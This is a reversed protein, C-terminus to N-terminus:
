IKFVLVVELGGASNELLVKGNMQEMIYKVIFLGLGSGPEDGRNRGRYFKDFIFPMDEPMIGNGHDKIHLRYENDGIDTWINIKTGQAYKRANNIINEITQAIRGSDADPIVMSQIDGNLIIDDHSGQMAEITDSIVEDIQVKERKIILKDLDHLSHIFMDNTIKTVEDCKRIIVNIYRNRREPTSDMNESLGEAYGRISAIPTKIDHSLTAIVTKNNEIAEQECQKSKKIESRMHDFAWTFEGFMNVREYKLESDLNGAAIEEAFNELKDFPRLILVYITIYVMVIIAVCIVYFMILIKTDEQIASVNDLRLDNILTDIKGHIDTYQASLGMDGDSVAGTGSEIGDHLEDSQADALEYLMRDIENLAVVTEGNDAQLLKEDYRKQQRHYCRLFVATLVCLSIVAMSLVKHSVKSKYRKNSM